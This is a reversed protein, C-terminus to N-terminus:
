ARRRPAPRGNRAGRDLSTRSALVGIPHRHDRPGIAAWDAIRGPVRAPQIERVVMAAGACSGDATFVPAASVHLAVMANDFRRAFLERRRTIQHNAIARVIPLDDPAVPEGTPERFDISIANGYRDTLPAGAKSLARLSGNAVTAHGQPDTLQVGDPMQDIVTQLWAGAPAGPACQRAAHLAAGVRAALAAVERQDSDTFATGGRKNAVYVCGVAHGGVRIPVGLVSPSDARRPTVSRVLTMTEKGALGLLGVPGNSRGITAIEDASLGSVAWVDFPHEVDGGIAVAACAAGTLNQAELAITQFAMQVSSPPLGAIAKAIATRAFTAREHEHHAPQRPEAARKRAVLTRVRTRLEDVSFPKDLFDQVDGTALRGGIHDASKAGLVLIPTTDFDRRRRLRRILEDGTMRPMVIDTVIVDPHEVSAKDFGDVGDFASVVAFGEDALCSAVFRNMDPSDEVVLVRGVADSTTKAAPARERSQRLMDVVDDIAPASTAGGAEASVATGSPASMPLDVIFLAGHEPADHVAVTGHLLAAFDKVISLGIGAGPQRIGDGDLRSFRDFVVDRLSAPIGPGSDAVEIQVREGAERLTVRVRGGAPTYNFANSLLNLLMSHLTAPDIEVPLYPPTEVTFRLHQEEALVAFQSCLGNVLAAADTKVYHLSVKDADIRAIDLLDNAYRLATRANRQIVELDRRLARDM